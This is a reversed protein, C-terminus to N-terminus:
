RRGEEEVPPGVIRALALLQSSLKLGQRQAAARNIEFRIKQGEFVFAVTGGRRAFDPSDGVTLVPWDATAAVIAPIRLRESEAVFIIHCDSLDLLQSSREIAIPRERITEGAVVADLVPGFPDAGLVGIKLPARDGAFAAAPWEVFQAFNFLFLAKVQYEKLTGVEARLPLFGSAILLALSGLLLGPRRRRRAPRNKRMARLLQPTLLAM